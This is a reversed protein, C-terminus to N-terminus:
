ASELSSHPSVLHSRNVNDLGERYTIQMKFEIYNGINSDQWMLFKITLPFQAAILEEHLSNNTDEPVDQVNVQSQAARMGLLANAPASSPGGARDPSNDFNQYVKNANKTSGSDGSACEEIENDEMLQRDLNVYSARRGAGLGGDRKSEM